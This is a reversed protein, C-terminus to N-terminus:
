KWWDKSGDYFGFQTKGKTNAMTLRLTERVDLKWVGGENVLRAVTPRGGRRAATVSFWTRFYLIAEDGNVEEHDVIVGRAAQTQAGRGPGDQLPADTINNTILSALKSQQGRDGYYYYARLTGETTKGADAPESMAESPPLSSGSEVTGTDESAGFPSGTTPSRDVMEQLSPQHIFWSGDIRRFEIPVDITNDMISMTQMGRASDGDIVVDKLEQSANMMAMQQTGMQGQMEEGKETFYDMVDVFFAEKDEISDAATEMQQQMQSFLQGLGAPSSEDPTSSASEVGHKEMIAAMGEDGSAVMQAMFAVGAVTRERTDPSLTYYLTEWDRKEVANKQAKWAAEPTRYSPGSSFLTVAAIGIIALVVLSGLVISVVKIKNVTQKKPKSRAIAGPAGHAASPLAQNPLSAAPMSGGLPDGDFSSLDGLNDLPGADALPDPTPTDPAAPTQGM